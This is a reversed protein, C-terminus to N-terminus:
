DRMRIAGLNLCNNKHRSLSSRSVSFEAEIDRLSEGEALARNIEEVKAHSCVICSVAEAEDIAALGEIPALSPRSIGKTFSSLIGLASTFYGYAESAKGLADVQGGIMELFPCGFGSPLYGKPINRAETQFQTLDNYGSYCVGPERDWSPAALKNLEGLKELLPPFEKILSDRLSLFTDIGKDHKKVKAQIKKAKDRLTQRKDVVKQLEGLEEEAVKFARLEALEKLLGSTDQGTELAKVIKKQIMNVTTL